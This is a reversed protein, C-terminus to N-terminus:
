SARYPCVFWGLLRAGLLAGSGRLALASLSAAVCTCTVSACAHRSRSPWRKARRRCRRGSRARTARLADMGDRREDCSSWLSSYLESKELAMADPSDREDQLL